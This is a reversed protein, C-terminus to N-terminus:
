NSDRVFALLEETVYDPATFMACHGHGNFTAIRSNPLTNHAVEASDKFFQASESGFVLLTPTTIGRYRSPDFEYEARGLMEQILTTRFRAMSEQWTPASRLVEIEEPTLQLLERFLLMLARENEGADVLALMEKVKTPDLADESPVIGAEYLVLKNVNDTRLAAELAPKGGGSHGLLTVPEDISNVVAAVDEGQAELSPTRFVNLKRYLQGIILEVAIPLHSSVTKRVPDPAFTPSTSEGYGRRDMAYVTFHEALTPRFDSVEWITHNYFSGHVLVLPPGSGTRKYAIETGDASSVTELEEGRVTSTAVPM